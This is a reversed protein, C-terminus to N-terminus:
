RALGGCLLGSVFFCVDDFFHKNLVEWFYGGNIGALAGPPMMEPVIQLKAKPDATVASVSVASLNAQVLHFVTPGVRWSMSSGVAPAGTCNIAVYSVGAGPVFRDVVSCNWVSDGRQGTVCSSVVLLLVLGIM